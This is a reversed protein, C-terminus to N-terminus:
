FSGEKHTGGSHRFSLFLFSRPVGQARNVMMHVKNRGNSATKKKNNKKQKQSQETQM